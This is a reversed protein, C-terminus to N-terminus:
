YYDAICLMQEDSTVEMNFSPKELQNSGVEVRM